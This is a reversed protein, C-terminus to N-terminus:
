MVVDLEFSRWRAFERGDKEDEPPKADTKPKPKQEWDEASELRKELERV